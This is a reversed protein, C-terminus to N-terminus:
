SNGLVSRSSSDGEPHCSKTKGSRRNSFHFLSFKETAAEQSSMTPGDHAEAAAEGPNRLCVIQSQSDLSEPNCHCMRIWSGRFLDKIICVSPLALCSAMMIAANVYPKPLRICHGFENFDNYSQFVPLAISIGDIGRLFSTNELHEECAVLHWYWQPQGLVAEQFNSAHQNRAQAAQRLLVVNEVKRDFM